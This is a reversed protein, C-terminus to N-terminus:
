LTEEGIQGGINKLFSLDYIRNKSIHNYVSHEAKTLWYTKSKAIFYSLLDRTPSECRDVDIVCYDVASFVDLLWDFEEKSYNSKDFYYLNLDEELEPLIEQQFTNQLELGPFILLLSTADNHLKDPPTILNVKTM